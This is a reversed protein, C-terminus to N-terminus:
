QALWVNKDKQKIQHLALYALLLNHKM